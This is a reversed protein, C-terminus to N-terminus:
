KGRVIVLPDAEEVKPPENEPEAIAAILTEGDEDPKKGSIRRIGEVIDGRVAAADVHTDTLGAIGYVTRGGGGQDEDYELLKEIGSTIDAHSPAAHKLATRYNELAKATDKLSFEYTRGLYFHAVGAAPGAAAERTVKNLTAIAGHPDGTKEQLGAIAMEVQLKVSSRKESELHKRCAALARKYCDQAKQTRNRAAYMDGTTRLRFAKEVYPAKLPTASMLGGTLGPVMPEPTKVKLLGPLCLLLITFVVAAAAFILAWRQRVLSRLFGALWAGHSPLLCATPLCKACRPEVPAVSLCSQCAPQGCHGCFAIAFRDPHAACKPLEVALNAKLEALDPDLNM